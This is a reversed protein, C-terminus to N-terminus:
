LKPLGPVLHEKAAVLQEHTGEVMVHHCLDASSVFVDERGFSIGLNGSRSLLGVKPGEDRWLHRTQPSYKVADGQPIGYKSDTDYNVRDPLPGFLGLHEPFREVIGVERAQVVLRKDGDEVLKLDPHEAVLVVNRKGQHEEPVPFVYTIGARDVCTIERGLGKDDEEYAVMTGAWSSFGRSLLGITKGNIEVDRTKICATDMTKNSAITLGASDAVRLAEQMPLRNAMIAFKKPIERRPSDKRQANRSHM